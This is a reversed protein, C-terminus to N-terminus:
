RRGFWAILNVVVTLVLSIVISTALPISVRFGDGDFTFDGPLRWLPLSLRTLVWVLGGVVVLGLGILVLARGLQSGDM